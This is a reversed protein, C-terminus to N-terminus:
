KVTRDYVGKIRGTDISYGSPNFSYPKMAATGLRSMATPAMDEAYAFGLEDVLGSQTWADQVGGAVATTIGAQIADMMQKEEFTGWVDEVSQDLERRYDAGIGQQTLERVDVGGYAEEALHSGAYSGVTSALTAGAITGFGPFIANMILPLGVQGLLGGLFSADAARQNQNMIDEYEDQLEKKAQMSASTLLARSRARSM